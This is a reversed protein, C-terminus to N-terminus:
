GPVIYDVMDSYDGEVGDDNIATVALRYSKGPTLRRVKVVIANREQVAANNLSYGGTTQRYIAFRSVNPNAEFDFQFALLESITRDPGLDGFGGQGFTLLGIGDSALSQVEDGAFMPQGFRADGIM